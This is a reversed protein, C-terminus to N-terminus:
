LQPGLEPLIPSQQGTFIADPNPAAGPPPIVLIATFAEKQLTAQRGQLSRLIWGSHGENKRLRIVERTTQDVFIAIADRESLVVGILALRPREPEAPKPLVIPRPPEVYAVPPSPPRRSPTFLPRDRTFTLSKLPIAWLPNGRPESAAGQRTRADGAAPDPAVGFGPRTSNGAAPAPTPTVVSELPDPGVNPSTLALRTQAAASGLLALSVAFGIYLTWRTSM